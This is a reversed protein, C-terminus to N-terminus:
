VSLKRFILDYLYSIMPVIFIIILGVALGIEAPIRLQPPIFEYGFIKFPVPRFVSGMLMMFSVIILLNEGLHLSEKYSM